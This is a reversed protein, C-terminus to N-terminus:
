FQILSLLRNNQPNRQRFRHRLHKLPTFMSHTGTELRSCVDQLATLYNFNDSGELASLQATMMAIDKFKMSCLAEYHEINVRPGSQSRAALSNWDVAETGM